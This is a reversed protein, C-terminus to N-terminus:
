RSIDCFGVPLILGHGGLPPYVGKINGRVMVGYTVLSQCSISNCDSSIDQAEHHLLIRCANCWPTGVKNLSGSADHIYVLRSSRGNTIQWTAQGSSSPSYGYWGKSTVALYECHVLYAWLTVVYGVKSVDVSDCCPTVTRPLTVLTYGGKSIDALSVMRLNRLCEMVNWVWDCTVWSAGEM